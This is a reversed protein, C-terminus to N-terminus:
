GGSLSNPRDPLTFSIEIGTLDCYKLLSDVKYSAPGTEIAYVTSRSFGRKELTYTSIGAKERLAKLTKGLNEKNM